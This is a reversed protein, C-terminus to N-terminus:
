LQYGVVVIFISLNKIMNNAKIRKPANTIAPDPIYPIM